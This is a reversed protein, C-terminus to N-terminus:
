GFLSGILTFVGVYIFSVLYGMSLGRFRSCVLMSLRFSYIYSLFFGLLIIIVLFINVSFGTLCVFFFHKSFYIGMFPLGCLCFILFTLLISNYLGGYRSMYVGISSQSGSSTSMLDGVLIFLACKCIGHVLLQFVVLYLDKCVYYVLCWAIKNCTSLAVIKKLDVFFLACFGTVFITFLSVVFILFVTFHDLFFGYRVIFWVGAAVLTSSHVLSSVPTPARM